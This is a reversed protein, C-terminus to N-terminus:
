SAPAAQAAPAPEQAEEEEIGYSASPDNAPLFIGIL